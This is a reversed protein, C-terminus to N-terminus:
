GPSCACARTPTCTPSGAASGSASPRRWRRRWRRSMTVEVGFRRATAAVEQGIFGAGVIALRTGPRLEAYWEAPRLAVSDASAGRWCRSSLPPRDYPAESAACVIRLSGDDGRRRLTEAARQSALGGGLVIGPDNM